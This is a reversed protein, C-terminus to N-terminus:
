RVRSKFQEIFRLAQGSKTFSIKMDTGDKFNVIVTTDSMWDFSEITSFDM